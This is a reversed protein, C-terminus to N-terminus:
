LIGSVLSDGVGASQQYLAGIHASVAARVNASDASDAGAPVEFTTTILMNVPSQGALPTVGKVTVLKWRNKPVNRLVGDLGVASLIRMVVPRVFNILFPISATHTVVGTQTGGLATVAYQKGNSGNPSADATITYTPSTFGTQASGTVPSSPAYAM